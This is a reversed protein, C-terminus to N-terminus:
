DFSHDKWYDHISTLTPSYLFSLVLSNINKFQPTPSSEQSDRLSCPSWVLWDSLFDTSFIWQFSQHQFQFELVKAVQHLSSVEKFLGSTPFPQLCSSFPVVSSSITPHCWQSSPCSNSCAGPTLSPCPLRAHKLGHPRLSNSVISGSFQVPHSFIITFSVVSLSNIELIYLCSMCSLVLFVFLGILTPFLFLFANRWLLCVSSLSVCSFINLM